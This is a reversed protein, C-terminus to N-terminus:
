DQYPAFTNECSSVTSANGSVLSAIVGEGTIPFNVGSRGVTARTFRFRAQKPQIDDIKVGDFSIETIHDANLGAIQV